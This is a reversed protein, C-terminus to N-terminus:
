RAPPSGPEPARKTSMSSRPGVSPVCSRRSGFNGRFPETRGVSRGPSRQHAPDAASHTRGHGGAEYRQDETDHEGRRGRAGLFLEEVDVVPGVIDRGVRDRSELVLGADVHVVVDIVAVLHQLRLQQGAARAIVQDHRRGRGIERALDLRLDILRDVLGLQGIVAIEIRLDEGGGRIGIRAVPEAHGIEPAGRAHAVVRRHHFRRQAGAREVPLEASSNSGALALASAEHPM